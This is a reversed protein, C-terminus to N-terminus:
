GADVNEERATGGAELGHCMVREDLTTAIAVIAIAPVPPSWIVANCPTPRFGRHWVVRPNRTGRQTYKTCFLYTARAGQPAAARPRKRRSFLTHVNRLSSYVRLIIPHAFGHLPLRTYKM